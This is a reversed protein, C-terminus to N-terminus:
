SATKFLYGQFLRVGREQWYQLQEETEIGELILGCRNLEGYRLLFAVLADVNADGLRQTYTLDLKLFDPRLQFLYAISAYGVGFDDIALRVGCDLLQQLRQEWLEPKNVLATETVELVLRRRVSEPLTRVLAVMAQLHLESGFSVASINVGLQQQHGQPERLLAIARRLMLQDLLHVNNNRELALVLEQVSISSELEQPLRFLMESYVVRRQGHVLELVPELAYRHEELTAIARSLDFDRSQQRRLQRAQEAVDDPLLHVVEATTSHALVLALDALQQAPDSRELETVIGGVALQMTEAMAQQLEQLVEEIGRRAASPDIGNAGSPRLVQMLTNNDGLGLVSGPELQQLREGLWALAQHQAQSSQRIADRFLLVKVQLAAIGLEQPAGGPPGIAQLLARRSLLRGPLEQRLLRLQRLGMLGGIGALGVLANLGIWGPAMEVLAQWRQRWPHLAPKLQLAQGPPLLESVATAPISQRSPTSSLSGNIRSFAVNVATNYSPREIRSFHLLWGREPGGGGSRRIATGAGLVSQDAAQCHFGFAQRGEGQDSRGALRELHKHLCQRLPASMGTAIAAGRALLQRRQGDVVLLGQGDQIISSNNLERAVFSPDEGGAYTYLPDWHGWDLATIKHSNVRLELLGQDTVGQHAQSQQLLLWRQHWLVGALSGSLLVWILLAASLSRPHELRLRQWEGSLNSLWRTPREM